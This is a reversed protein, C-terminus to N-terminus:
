FFPSDNKLVMQQGPCSPMPPGSPHFPLNACFVGGTTSRRNIAWSRRESTFPGSRRTGSCVPRFVSPRDTQCNQNLPKYSLVVTRNHFPKFSKSTLTELKSIRPSIFVKMLLLNASSSENTISNKGVSLRGPLPQTSVASSGSSAM